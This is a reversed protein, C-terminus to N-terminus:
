LTGPLCRCVRRGGSSNLPPIRMGVHLLPGLSWPFVLLPLVVLVLTRTNAWVKCQTPVAHM